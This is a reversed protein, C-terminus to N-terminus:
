FRGVIASNAKVFTASVRADKEEEESARQTLFFWSNFDL